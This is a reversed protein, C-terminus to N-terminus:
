IRMQATAPMRASDEFDSSCDSCRHGCSGVHSLRQPREKTGAAQLCERKRHSTRPLVPLLTTDTGHLSSCSTKRRSGPRFMESPLNGTGKELGSVERQPAESSPARSPTSAPARAGPPLLSALLQSSTPLRAQRAMTSGLEFRCSDPWFGWFRLLGLIGRISVKSGLGMFAWVGGIEPGLAGGPRGPACAVLSGKSPAPRASSSARMRPILLKAARLRKQLLRIQTCPKLLPIKHCSIFPRQQCSQTAEGRRWFDQKYTKATRHM